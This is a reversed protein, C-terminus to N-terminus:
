IIASVSSSSLHIRKFGKERDGATRTVLLFSVKKPIIIVGNEDGVLWREPAQVSQTDYSPKLLVVVM